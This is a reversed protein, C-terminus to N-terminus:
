PTVAFPQAFPVSGQGTAHAIYRGEADLAACLSEFYESDAHSRRFEYNRLERAARDTGNTTYEQVYGRDDVFLVWAEYGRPSCVFRWGAPLNLTRVLASLAMARGTWMRESSEAEKLTRKKM